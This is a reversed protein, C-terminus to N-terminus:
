GVGCLLQEVLEVIGGALLVLLLGGTVQVALSYARQPRAAMWLLGCATYMVGAGAVGLAVGILQLESLFRVFENIVGPTNSECVGSQSQLTLATDLVDFIFQNGQIVGSGSNSGFIKKVSHTTGRVHETVIKRLM